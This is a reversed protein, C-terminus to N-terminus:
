TVLRKYLDLYDRASHQWSFDQKMGRRVLSQWRKPQRYLALGRQIAELLDPASAPEFHFGTGRRSDAADIVTDALGGTNSVIPVTGYRLSYIQNLGCPEYRSPM